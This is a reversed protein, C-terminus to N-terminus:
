IRNVRIVKKYDNVEGYLFYIGTALDGVLITLRNGKRHVRGDLNVVQVSASILTVNTAEVDSSQLIITKNIPNGILRLQGYTNLSSTMTPAEVGKVM